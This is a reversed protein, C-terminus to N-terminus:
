NNQEIAVGVKRRAQRLLISIQTNRVKDAVVILEDLQREMWEFTAVDSKQSLGDIHKHLTVSEGQHLKRKLSIFLGKSVAEMGAARLAKMTGDYEAEPHEPFYERLWKTRNNPKNANGRM